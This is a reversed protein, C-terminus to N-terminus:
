LEIRRFLSTKKLWFHLAHIQIHICLGPENMSEDLLEGSLWVEQEEADPEKM